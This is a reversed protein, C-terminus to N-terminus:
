QQLYTVAVNEHWARVVLPLHCRFLERAGASGQGLEHSALFTAGRPLFSRTVNADSRSTAADRSLESLSGASRASSFGRPPARPAAPLLLNPKRNERECGREKIVRKYARSVCIRGNHTAKPVRRSQPWTELANPNRAEIYRIEFKSTERKLNRVIFNRIHLRLTSCFQRRSNKSKAVELKTNRNDTVLVRVSSRSIPPFRCRPQLWRVPVQKAASIWYFRQIILSSSDTYREARAAARM